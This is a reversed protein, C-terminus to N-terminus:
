AASVRKGPENHSSLYAQMKMRLKNLLVEQNKRNEADTHSQKLKAEQKLQKNLLSYREM